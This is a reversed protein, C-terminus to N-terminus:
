DIRKVLERFNAPKVSSRTILPLSIARVISSRYTPLFKFSGKLMRKRKLQKLVFRLTELSIGSRMKCMARSPSSPAPWGDGVPCHGM